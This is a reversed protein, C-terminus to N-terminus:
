FVGTTKNGILKWDTENTFSDSCIVLTEDTQKFKLNFYGPDENYFCCVHAKEKEAVIINIARIYETRKDIIEIGKKLAESFDGKDFRKIFNYIKEAGIRGEANIKVGRLEGNFVFITKEDYFPMNNEVFIDKDQFASRAHAIVIKSKGFESLNDEWIPKINKYNEWKGNKLFSFGWGHGQYEKSNKSIEAFKKLYGSIEFEESSRVYLLRCM